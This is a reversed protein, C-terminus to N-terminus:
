LGELRLIEALEADVETVSSFAINQIAQKMQMVADGSAVRGLRHEAIRGGYTFSVVMARDYYLRMGASETTSRGRWAPWLDALQSLIRYM